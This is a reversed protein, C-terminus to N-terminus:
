GNRFTQGVQVQLNVTDFSNEPYDLSITGFPIFKLVETSGIPAWEIHDSGLNNFYEVLSEGQEETINSWVWTWIQRRANIGELGVAAYGENFQFQKIGRSQSRRASSFQIPPFAAM